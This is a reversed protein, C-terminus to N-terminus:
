KEALAMVFETIQAWAKEPHNHDQAFLDVKDALEQNYPFSITALPTDPWAKRYAYINAPSDDVLIDGKLLEKRSGVMVNGYHLYPAAKKTLEFKQQATSGATATAVIVDHGADHITKLAEAAGPMVPCGSYRRVDAFFDFIRSNPKTFKTIDYEIIHDLTLRDEYRGNYWDIWPNLLDIIISDLDFLCILKKM